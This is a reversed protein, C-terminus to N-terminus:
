LCSLTEGLMLTKVM